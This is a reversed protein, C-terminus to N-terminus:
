QVLLASSTDILALLSTILLGSDTAKKQMADTLPSDRHPKQFTM